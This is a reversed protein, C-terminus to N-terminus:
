PAWAIGVTATWGARLAADAGEVGDSWVVSPGGGVVLGWPEIIRLVTVLELDAAPLMRWDTSELAEGELGAREGQHRTRSEHVLTGGAGLRLSVTGRGMRKRAIGMLRFRLDAHSVEFSQTHETATSWSVAAGWALTRGHVFGAGVGTSLGTTLAAPPGVRLGAEARWLSPSGAPASDSPPEEAPSHEPSLGAACAFLFALLRATLPRSM